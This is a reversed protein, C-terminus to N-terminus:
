VRMAETPTYIVCVVRGTALERLETELQSVISRTEESADPLQIRFLAEERPSGNRLVCQTGLLFNESSRLREFRDDFAVVPFPDENTLLYFGESNTPRELTAGWSDPITNFLESLFEEDTAPQWLVLGGDTMIAVQSVSRGLEKRSAQVSKVLESLEKKSTGTVTIRFPNLAWGPKKMILEQINLFSSNSETFGIGM